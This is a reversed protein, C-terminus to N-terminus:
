PRLSDLPIQRGREILPRGEVELTANSWTLWRHFSSQFQGGSLLNDGLILRVVGAGFGYHPLFSSGPVPTLLPNCGIIIEGLMDKDGSEAAWAKDLAQQDGETQVSVARGDRFEFALGASTFPHVDFGRGLAMAEGDTRRPFMVRGQASGPEPIFRFSGVPVEEERDRGSSFRAMRERSADGYNTHFNLGARFRLDTGADDTLRLERGRIMEAMREMMHRMWDYDLEIIAKENVRDHLLNVPHSPDPFRPDQFWHLHASRVNKCATVVEDSQSTSVTRYARRRDNMLLIFVDACSFLQKMAETEAKDREGDPHRGSPLRMAGVAPSWHLISALEIAGARQIECRVAELAAGGYYPDASILVRESPQVALIRRVVKQAIAEWNISHTPTLGQHEPLPFPDFVTM